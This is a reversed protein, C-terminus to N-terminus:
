FSVTSGVSRKDCCCSPSVNLDLPTWYILSSAHLVFPRDSFIYIQIEPEVPFCVAGLLLQKRPPNSREEATSQLLTM